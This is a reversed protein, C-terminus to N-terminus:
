VQGGKQLSLIDETSLKGGKKFKNMLEESTKKAKEEEVEKKDQRAKKRMGFLIKDYDHVKKLHEVHNFHAEDAATKSKVFMEQAEDAKKRISHGEEYLTIMRDHEEQARQAATEVMMHHTEANDRVVKLESLVKNIDEDESLTKEVSEIESKISKMKDVLKREDQINLVSTQQRKELDRLERKFRAISSMGQQPLKEKKLRSLEGSLEAVCKNAEDRGDKAERVKANQEDRANRHIHAEEILKRSEANLRDREQVWRKTEDNHDDRVKRWHEAEANEIERKKRIDEESYIEEM